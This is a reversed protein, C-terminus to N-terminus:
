NEEQEREEELKKVKEELEDVKKVLMKFLKLADKNLHLQEEVCNDVSGGYGELADDTDESQAAVTALQDQM